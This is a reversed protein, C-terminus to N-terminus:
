GSVGEAGCGARGDCASGGFMGGGFCGRLGLEEFEFDIEEHMLPLWFSREGYWGPEWVFNRVVWGVRLGVVEGKGGGLETM